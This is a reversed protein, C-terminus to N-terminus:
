PARLVRGPTPEPPPEPRTANSPVAQSVNCSLHFADLAAAATADIHYNGATLDLIDNTDYTQDHPDASSPHDKSESLVPPPDRHDNPGIPQAM